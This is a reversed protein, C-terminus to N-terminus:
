SKEKKENKLSAMLARGFSSIEEKQGANQGKMYDTYEREIESDKVQRISLSIKQRERDISQVMVPIKQGRQFEKELVKGRPVGSESAPVLGTFNQPLKIFIGFTKVSDVAGELVEGVAFPLSGQWPNDLLSKLSLTLRDEKWDINLVRVRVSEGMKVIDRPHGPRQYALESVPILGEMGGIDVFVGFDQISRVTGQVVDGPQLSNQLVAKLKEKEVDKWAKWSAIVRRDSVEVALVDIVEGESLSPDGHSMPCFASVEGIEIEFGGKIKRVIRGRFPIKNEMAARLIAIKNRGAPITTFLNEGGDKYNFFAFIKEGQAVRVKGEQDILEDRQIVGSGHETKIFVFDRDRNNVVNAIVLAGPSLSKDKKFSEELLENFETEVTKDRGIHKSKM